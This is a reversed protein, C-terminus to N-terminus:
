VTMKLKVVPFGDQTRHPPHVVDNSILVDLIGENESYNKIAIEGKGLGKIPASAKAVPLGDKADMLRLETGGVISSVKITCEWGEFNVIKPEKEEM